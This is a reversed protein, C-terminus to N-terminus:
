ERNRLYHFLYTQTYGAYEEGLRERLAKSTPAYSGKDCEPYYDEIVTQMWTDLPVPELYGLSFLLVCDAVKDGVGVYRTLWERAEEYPYNRAAAPDEGDAVMEATRQVYPARYGLSLDRLEEETAAALQDPTPYAHYTEGDFEIPTGFAERLSQQMAHIRSVRMQASCIFSILAGFPPDRVIRMGWYTDYAADIVDDSPSHQRIMKLDDALGLRESLCAEADVNSEWELQGDLQRVRVVAPEGTDRTTTLYWGDGGYTREYDTGDERWWLYSQGSEVTSQLDFGGPLSEVDIQGREM